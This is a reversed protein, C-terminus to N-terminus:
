GITRKSSRSKRKRKGGQQPVGKKGRKGDNKQKVKVDSKEKVM